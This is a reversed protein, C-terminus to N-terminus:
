SSERELIIPPQTLIMYLGIAMSIPAILVLIVAVIPNVLIIGLFILVALEMMILSLSILTAGVLNRKRRRESVNRIIKELDEM